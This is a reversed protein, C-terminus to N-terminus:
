VHCWNLGGKTLAVSKVRTCCFEGLIYWEVWNSNHMHVYYQEWEFSNHSPIMRIWPYLTLNWRSLFFFVTSFLSWHIVSITVEFSQLWIVTLTLTVSLSHEHFLLSAPAQSYGTIERGPGMVMCSGQGSGSWRCVAHRQVEINPVTKTWTCNDITVTLKNHQPPPELSHPGHWPVTNTTLDRM